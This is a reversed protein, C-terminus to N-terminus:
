YMDSESSGLDSTDYDSDRRLYHEYESETGEESEEDNEDLELDSEDLESPTKKVQFDIHSCVGREKLAEEVATRDKWPGITYLLLLL